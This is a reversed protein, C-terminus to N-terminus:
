YWNSWVNDAFIKTRSFTKDYWKIIKRAGVVVEIASSSTAGSPADSPIYGSTFGHNIYGAM